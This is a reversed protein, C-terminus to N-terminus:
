YGGVLDEWDKLKQEMEEKTPEHYSEEVYVAMHVDNLFKRILVKDKPKIGEYICRDSIDVEYQGVPPPSAHTEIWKQFEKRPLTKEVVCKRRREDVAIVTKVYEYKYMMPTITINSGSSEKQIEHFMEWDKPANCYQKFVEDCEKARHVRIRGNEWDYKAVYCGIGTEAYKVLAEWLQDSIDYPRTYYKKSRKGTHWSELGLEVYTM